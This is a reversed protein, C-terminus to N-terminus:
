SLICLDLKKFYASLFCYMSFLSQGIYCLLKSKALHWGDFWHNIDSREERLFKRVQVHRDTTLDSITVGKADVTNLARKLGELEMANSNKVENSQLLDIM